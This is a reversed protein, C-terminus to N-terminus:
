RVAFAIDYFTQLLGLDLLGTTAHFYWLHGDKAALYSGSGSYYRFYFGAGSQSPGAVSVFYEPFSRQAWDFVTDAKQSDTAGPDVVLPKAFAGSGFNARFDSCWISAANFGDLTQGEPLQVLVSSNVYPAGPRNLRNGVVKGTTFAANTDQGALYLYVAPGGGDYNFADLRLTREDVITVTGSVGHQLTSLQAVWGARPYPACWAPASLNWLAFILVVLYRMTFRWICYVKTAPGSFDKCLGIATEHDQSLANSNSGQMRYMQAGWPLTETIKLLTQCDLRAAEPRIESSGGL